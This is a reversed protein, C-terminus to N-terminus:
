RNNSILVVGIVLATLAGGLSLLALVVMGLITLASKAEAGRRRGLLVIGIVGALMVLAAIVLAIVFGLRDAPHIVGRAERM